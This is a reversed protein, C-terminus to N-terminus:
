KPHGLALLMIPEEPIGLVEKVTAPRIQAAIGTGLGAATAALRVTQSVHGADVPVHVQRGRDSFYRVTAEYDAALVLTAPARAVHSAYGSGEIAQRRLDGAKLLKLEHSGQLYRYSGPTLGEVSAALVYVQVPYVIGASPYSRTATSTADPSETGLPISEVRYRGGGAAWLVYSLEDLTLPQPLYEWFQRVSTLAQELSVSQRSRPQPLRVTEQASGPCSCLATLLVVIVPIVPLRRLGRAKM